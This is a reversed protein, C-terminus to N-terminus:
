LDSLLYLSGTVLVAGDPGALHRARELAEHPEPVAEVSGFHPAALRALEEAPLARPNSSRTAVLTDGVATLARLMAGAEKDALISTLITFRRGPLRPLLYGIGALNHAGDWIELPTDGRRELRGPIALADAAHPDVTRGLQAEAAAVALALNSNGPLEVRAAGNERAFEEWEPEGLIVVAGPTVVALKEAAVAERTEGLVETHDLAINTLVVIPAQVVNTADHRGGLGAELVAVDVEQAAFEALAAATLVEFQTAGEAYPRIRALAADLDAHVGDIQIRESWGRVHPSIYAGVHLGTSRLLEATLLTTSSKGNTGVVHIAPYRRQPEGLDALLTHMRALGFEAPWPTLSQLWRVHGNPDHGTGPVSVSTHRTIGLSRCGPTQM